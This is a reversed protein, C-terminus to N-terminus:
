DDSPEGIWSSGTKNCSGNTEELVNEAETVGMQDIDDLVRDMEQLLQHYEQIAWHRSLDDDNQRQIIRQLVQEIFESRSIDKEDILPELNDLTESDIQIFENPMNQYRNTVFLITGIYLTVTQDM